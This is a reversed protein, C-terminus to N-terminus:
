TKNVLDVRVFIHYDDASNIISAWGISTIFDEHGMVSCLTTIQSIEDHTEIKYAQSPLASLLLFITAVANIRNNITM